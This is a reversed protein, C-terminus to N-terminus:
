IIFPNWKWSHKSTIWGWSYARHKLKERIWPSTYKHLAVQNLLCGWIQLWKQIDIAHALIGERSIALGDRYWNKNIIWASLFRTSELKNKTVTLKLLCFSLCLKSENDYDNDYMWVVTSLMKHWLVVVCGM